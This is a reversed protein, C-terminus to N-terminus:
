KWRDQSNSSLPSFGFIMRMMEMVIFHGENGDIRRALIDNSIRPFPLLHQLGENPFHTAELCWLIAYDENQWWIQCGHHWHDRLFERSEPWKSIWIHCATVTQVPSPLLGQSVPLKISVSAVKKLRIYHVLWAVANEYCSTLKSWPWPKRFLDCYYSLYPYSPISSMVACRWSTPTGGAIQAYPTVTISWWLNVLDGIFANNHPTPITGRNNRLQLLPHVVSAWHQHMAAILDQHSNTIFRKGCKGTSSMLDLYLHLARGIVHGFGAFRQSVEFVNLIECGDSCYMSTNSGGWAGLGSVQFFGHSVEFTPLYTHTLVPKSLRESQILTSM